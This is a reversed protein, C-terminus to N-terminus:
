IKEKPKVVKGEGWETAKYGKKSKIRNTLAKILDVVQNEALACYSSNITFQVSFGYKGGVFATVTMTNDGENLGRSPYVRINRSMM